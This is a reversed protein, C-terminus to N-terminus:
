GRLVVRVKRKGVPVGQIAAPTFGMPKGDVEVIADREDAAVILSGTLPSLRGPVRATQGAVVNVEMPLAQFGERNFYLIHRGPPLEASCPATCIPAAREDDVHVTANPAGEVEAKLTGVIRKLPVDVKTESGLTADVAPLEAPEYGDLELIVKYK